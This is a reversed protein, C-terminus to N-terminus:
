KRTKSSLVAKQILAYNAGQYETVIFDVEWDALTPNNRVVHTVRELNLNELCIFREQSEAIILLSRTEGIRFTVKQSRLYTGERVLKHNKPTQNAAKLLDDNKSAMEPNSRFQSNEGNQVFTSSKGIQPLSALIILALSVFIGGGYYLSARNKINKSYENQCHRKTM